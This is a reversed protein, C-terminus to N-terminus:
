VCNKLRETCVNLTDEVPRKWWNNASFIEVEVPGSFGAAEVMGRIAQIEIVGDGMMGRDSLIDTTPNLWDNVHFGFIRKQAGARAIDHVLNPDWWTHYVDLLVGLFPNRTQGEVADCVDLAHSLTNICGRDAAYMPHMPEIALKLDISKGHELLEPLAEAVQGRAIALHRSSGVVLPFYEAGLSKADDMLRKNVNIAALRSNAEDAPLYASRCYGTVKLGADHIHQAVSNISEGELEQRWIACHGFGTRAIADVTKRVPWQFGLTASNISCDKLNKGLDRM